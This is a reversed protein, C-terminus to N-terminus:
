KVKLGAFCNCVPCAASWIDTRHGCQQCVYESTAELAPIKDMWRRAERVNHNAENEILAMQSAVNATLPYVALYGNLQKKAESWLRAKIAADALVLENLKANKNVACLKEVRQSQSLSNEKAFLRVYGKYVAWSPAVSWAKLYIKLAKRPKERAALVAAEPLAPCVKFADIGKNMKVLLVAKKFLYDPKEIEGQRYLKELCDFAQQWQENMVFLDLAEKLIWAEKPNKKLLDAVEESAKVIEGRRVHEAILGQWGAEQTRPNQVLEEFVDKGSHSLAKLILLVDKNQPTTKELTAILKANPKLNQSLVNTLIQILLTQAKNAKKKQWFSRIKEIWRFPFVLLYLVILAGLVCAICFAVSTEIVSGWWIIKVSGPNDALWWGGLLLAAVTLLWLILKTM